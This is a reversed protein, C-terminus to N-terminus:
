VAGGGIGEGGILHPLDQLFRVVIRERDLELSSVSSALVLPKGMEKTGPPITELPDHTPARPPTYRLLSHRVADPVPLSIWGSERHEWLRAFRQVQEAVYLRGEATWSRFVTFLEYNHQWGTASENISGNFALQNGEADTFVGVKPHFYDRSASAPLPVSNAATPLVVRIQLTGRAVMWALAALRHRLREELAEPPPLVSTLRAAVIQQPDYGAEIAEVDERSLQAGVLLRMTGGNTILHAVGASAIALAHSSFYGAMRDYRVSASLAPIYFDHLRDDGPGYTYRYDHDTLGPM